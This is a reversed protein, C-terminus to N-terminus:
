DNALEVLTEYIFDKLAKEIETETKLGLLSPATKRPLALLKARCNSIHNGWVDKVTEAKLYEQKKIKLEFEIRDAEAKAKRAREQKGDLEGANNNVEHIHEYYAKVCKHLDYEGRKEPKPFIGSDVYQSIRQKTLNLVEELTHLNSM